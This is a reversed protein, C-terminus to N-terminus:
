GGTSGEPADTAGPPTDPAAHLLEYVAQCLAVTRRVQGGLAHHMATHIAAARDVFDDLPQFRVSAPITDSTDGRCHENTDLAHCARCVIPRAEYVTCLGDQNFACLVRKRWQAIHERLHEGTAQRATLDAILEPKDGMQARWRPYTDLFAQRAAQNEPRRLFDAVRMAEPLWVMVLQECCYNCGPGCAITLGDAAARQARVTTGEDVAEQLKQSVLLADAPVLTRPFARRGTAYGADSMLETVLRQLRLAEPDSM